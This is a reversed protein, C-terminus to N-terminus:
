QHNDTIMARDLISRSPRPQCFKRESPATPAARAADSVRPRPRRTVTDGTLSSRWPSSVPSLSPHASSRRTPTRPPTSPEAWPQFASPATAASPTVAAPPATAAAPPRVAVRVAHLPPGDLTARNEKPNKKKIESGFTVEISQDGVISKVTSTIAIKFNELTEIKKEM